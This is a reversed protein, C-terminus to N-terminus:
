RNVINNKADHNLKRLKAYKLFSGYASISCAAHGRYGDLFAAGIFYTRFFRWWKHLGAIFLGAKRGKKFYENAMVTSYSNIKEIHEEFSSCYWHLLNGKLKKIRSGRNLMFRDHPNVGGWRGKTVDFLRLHRDPYWYSHKLWGGCYNTLRNLKYGDYLINDKIALISKRLEDSLEEDADLSLVYKNHALSIAFNKQEIYGEFAHEIFRVNYKNCIEKTSDGSFSDVVIIEDAIGRLSELCKGIHEEENYAIIVASIKQM